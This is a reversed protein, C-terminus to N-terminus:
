LLWTAGERNAGPWGTSFWILFMCSLSFHATKWNNQYVSSVLERPNHLRELLSVLFCVCRNIPSFIVEKASYSPSELQHWSEHNLKWRAAAICLVSTRWSGKVERNAKIRFCCLSGRHIGLWVCRMLNSNILKLCYSCMTHTQLSDKMDFLTRVLRSIFM